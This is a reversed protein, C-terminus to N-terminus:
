PPPHDESRASWSDVGSWARLESSEGDVLRLLAHAIASADSSRVGDSVTPDLLADLEAFPM